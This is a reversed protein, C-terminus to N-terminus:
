EFFISEPEEIHLLKVMIAIEARSFDGDREMKRYFTSPVIGLAICIDGVSKDAMVMAARLKKGDFM